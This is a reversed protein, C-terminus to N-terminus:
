RDEDSSFVRERSAWGQEGKQEEDSEHLRSLSAPVSVFCRFYSPEDGWVGARSICTGGVCDFSVGRKAAKKARPHQYEGLRGRWGDPKGERITHKYYRLAASFM